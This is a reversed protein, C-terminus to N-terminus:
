IGSLDIYNIAYRAGQAYSICYLKCGDPAVAM